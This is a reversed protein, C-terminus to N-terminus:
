MLQNERTFHLRTHEVWTQLTKTIATEDVHGQIEQDLLSGLQNILEAEERHTENMSELGVLPIDSPDLVNHQNTSMAFPLAEIHISTLSM